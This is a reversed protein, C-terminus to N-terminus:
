ADGFAAGALRRAHRALDQPWAAIEREFRVADGAFLARCAEEFGPQNGAAVSMFRYLSDRALRQDARGDRRAEDILRRLAVSAGGPQDALWKWHRPLLTVERAVVGLRPRGPGRRPPETDALRALIATEDGRLDLEVPAGTAGVLVLVRDARPGLRKVALAVEARSGEAVLQGDRFAVIDPINM